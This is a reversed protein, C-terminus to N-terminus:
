FLLSVKKLKEEWDEMKKKILFIDVKLLNIDNTENERISEATYKALQEPNEARYDLKSVHNLSTAGLKVCYEGIETQNILESIDTEADNCLSIVADWFGPQIDEDIKYTPKYYGELYKEVTERPISVVKVKEFM